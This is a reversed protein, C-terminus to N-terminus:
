DEGSREPIDFKDNQGCIVEILSSNDYIKSMINRLMYVFYNFITHSLDIIYMRNLPCLFLSHFM